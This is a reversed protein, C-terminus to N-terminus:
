RQAQRRQGQHHGVRGGSVEPADSADCLDLQRRSVSPQSLMRLAIIDDLM